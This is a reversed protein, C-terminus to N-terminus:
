ARKKIQTKTKRQAQGEVQPKHEMEATLHPMGEEHSLTVDKSGQVGVASSSSQGSVEQALNPPVSTMSVGDPALTVNQDPYIATLLQRGTGPAGPSLAPALWPPQGVVLPHVLAQGAPAIATFGLTTLSSPLYAPGSSPPAQVTATSVGGTGSQVYTIRTPPSTLLVTQPPTIGSTMVTATAMSVPFPSGPLVAGASHVNTQVMPMPAIQIMKSGPLAGNQVPLPPAVLCSPQPPTSGTRVTAMPVLMKSQLVPSQAQVGATFPGGGAGPGGILLMAKKEGSLASLAISGEMPKSAIPIPMSTIPCVMNTVVTPAMRVAGLVQTLGYGLAPTSTIPASGPISNSPVHGGGGRGRKSEGSGEEGGEMGRKRKRESSEGASGRTDGKTSDSHSDAHSTNTSSPLSSRVVPQFAQQGDPEDEDSDTVREKCKLDISGEPCSDEMVDDDGEEECIVMREEDSTVDESAGCQALSLTPPHSHFSGTEELCLKEVDRARERRELSHVASYSFARTRPLQGSYDGVHHESGGPWGPGATGKLEMGQSVSEPEASESM